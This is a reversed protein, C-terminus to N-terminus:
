YVENQNNVRYIEFSSTDDPNKITDILTMKEFINPFNKYYRNSLAIFDPRYIKIIEFFDKETKPLSFLINSLPSDVRSSGVVERTNTLRTDCVSMPLQQWFCFQLYPYKDEWTILLKQNNKLQFDSLSKFGYEFSEKALSPYVHFYGFLFYSASFLGIIVLVFSYLLCAWKNKIVEYLEVIGEACFYTLFLLLTVARLLYNAGDNTITAPIPSAIIWSLFILKNQKTQNKFFTYAGYVMFPLLFLYFSGVLGTSHRLISDGHIFLFYPSFFSLYNKTFTQFIAVPRNFFLKNFVREPEQNLSMLSPKSSRAIGRFSDSEATTNIDNWIALDFVRQKPNLIQYKGTLFTIVTILFFASSMLIWKRSKPNSLDFLRKIPVILILPAMLILTPYYYSAILFPLMSILIDKLNKANILLILHIISLLVLINIHTHGIRSLSFSWPLLALLLAGVLAKRLYLKSNNSIDVAKVFFFIAFVSISGFVASPLRVGLSNLGLFWTATFFLNALFSIVNGSSNKIQQYYYYHGVEDTYLEPTNLQLRYLRILLGFAFILTLLLFAKKTKTTM